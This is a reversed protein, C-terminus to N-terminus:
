VQLLPSSTANEASRDSIGHQKDEAFKRFIYMPYAKAPEVGEGHRSVTAKRENMGGSSASVTWAAIPRKRVSAAFCRFRALRRKSADGTAFFRPSSRTRRAKACVFM